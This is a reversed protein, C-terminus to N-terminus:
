VCETYVVLSAHRIRIHNFWPKYARGLIDSIRTKQVNTRSIAKETRSKAKGTRPVAFEATQSETFEFFVNKTQPHTTLCFPWLSCGDIGQRSHEM